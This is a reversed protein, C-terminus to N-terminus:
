DGSFVERAVREVEQRITESAWYMAASPANGYTHGGGADKPLYWGRPDDWHGKGPYTGPGYGMPNPHGYGYMVGSGFELFLVAGGSAVIKYGKDTGEVQVDVSSDGTYGSAGRSFDLSARVAGITALRECLVKTKREITRQYKELEKIAAGISKTDLTIRIKKAM